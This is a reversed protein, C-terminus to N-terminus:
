NKPGRYTEHCAKCAGGIGAMGAGVAAADAASMMEASAKELAAFKATFGDLDSWIEPKARSGDVEGQATGQVWLTTKDLKALANINGAAAKVVASDYDAEGKAIAGLVGTHYGIMQMQAHRAAVAANDIKSAHSAALGATAILATALGLVITSNAFSPM